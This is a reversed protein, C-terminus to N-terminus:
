IGSEAANGGTELTESRQVNKPQLVTERAPFSQITLLQQTFTKFALSIITVLASCSALWRDM